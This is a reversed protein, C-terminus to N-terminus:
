SHKELVAAVKRQTAASGNLEVYDKIQDLTFALCRGIKGFNIKGERALRRVTEPHLKLKAATESVSFYQLEATM